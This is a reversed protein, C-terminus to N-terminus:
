SGPAAAAPRVLGPLLERLWRHGADNQSRPHWVAIVDFTPVPVPIEFIGLEDRWTRLLREPGVAILDTRRLTSPLALFSPLSLGIKRREGLASLADDVPGHPEGGRPAVLAHPYACFTRVTVEDTLLPHGPRVAGVYRDTYLFRSRLDAAAWPPTTIGLDLDGQELRKPIDALELSRIVLRIGPATSQLHELLPVVVTVTMYDTTAIRVDREATAPDFAQPALLEGADRLLRKTPEILSRARDTAIPGRQARTFLPDGFLDRLRALAGSVAPQSLALREAARSVNREDLLADLVVLLNLDPRKM